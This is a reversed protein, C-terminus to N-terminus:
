CRYFSSSPPGTSSFAPSIRKRAEVLGTASNAKASDAGAAPAAPSRMPIMCSTVVMGPRVLGKITIKEGAQLNGNIVRLGDVM